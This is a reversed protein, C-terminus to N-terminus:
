MTGEVLVKWERCRVEGSCIREGRRVEGRRGKGGNKEERGQRGSEERGKRGYGVNM